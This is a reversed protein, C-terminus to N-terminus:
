HKRLEAFKVFAGRPAAVRDGVRDGNFLGATPPLGM